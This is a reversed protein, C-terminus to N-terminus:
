RQVLEEGAISQTVSFEDLILTPCVRSLVPFPTFVVRIPDTEESIVVRELNPELTTPIFLLKDVVEDERGASM